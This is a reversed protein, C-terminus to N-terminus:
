GRHRELYERTMAIPWNPAPTHKVPTRSPLSARIARCTPSTSLTTLGPLSSGLSSPYSPPWM